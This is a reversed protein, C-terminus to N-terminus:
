AYGAPKETTNEGKSGHSLSDALRTQGKRRAEVRM